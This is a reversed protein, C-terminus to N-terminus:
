TINGGKEHCGYSKGNREDLTHVKLFDKIEQAQHILSEARQGSMVVFGM